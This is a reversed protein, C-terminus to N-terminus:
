KKLFEKIEAQTLAQWPAEDSNAGSKEPNEGQNWWKAEYGVGEFMVRDGSHYVVESNWQLYADAPLQVKPLPKEGPLVPGVLEWPIESSQLVPSDPAEGKTWWKARYVNHKWVVKTGALYVGAEQWIEYPSTAPDDAKQLEEESLESVTERKADAKISGTLGEKLLNAFEGEEQKVGTAHNSVVQTNINSERSKRDRNASWMSVRGLNKKKAFTNLKRADQLTFVESLVDNQGIMPTAGLKTWLTENTLNIDQEKYLIKLQRHTQKLANISNEAMSLKKDRSDGYNMTMINVGALDVGATLLTAVADTGDKTLGKPTAPLTLWIALKKNAKKQEAQLQALAEGRRKGAEKDTLGKNELDLDITNLEYRDIVSKYAKALEAPKQYALALEDNLLGGFSVIIESGKQRLRAIRRDLDLDNSAEDLSYAAGWSPKQGNKQAVVFSLVVNDAYQEFAYQPTLTTDVYSAFWPATTQQKVEKKKTGTAVLKDGNLFLTVAGGIIVLVVLCRFLSLRRSKNKKDNSM